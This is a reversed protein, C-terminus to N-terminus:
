WINKNFCIMIAVECIYLFFFLYVFLFLFERTNCNSESSRMILAISAAQKKEEAAMVSTAQFDIIASQQKSFFPHFLIQLLPPVVSLVKAKRATTSGSEASLLEPFTRCTDHERKVM